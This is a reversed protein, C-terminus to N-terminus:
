QTILYSDIIVQVTRTGMYENINPYYTINFVIDSEINMFMKKVRDQGFKDSLDDLLSEADKFYLADIKRGYKNTIELKLTNKNKGLLFARNVKVNREAFVPKPNGKGFPELVKLENVLEETIYGLPLVVDIVVKKRLDDDTLSTQKNLARRFSEINEEELSLGAAMPHGGFKTLYRKVKTLEKFMNYEEISRGSGKVGKEAKTLVITPKNYQERVRGAIIGAISEHCDPLYIVLIKDDKLVSTEVQDIAEETGRATMDKREDNLDKLEKAIDYAQEKSEALLLQLGKEATDLRGSANLCPGIIFGLHYGSLKEININCLDILANLGYNSSKRLQKLGLQVLVRNEGLLDMVDCVTAIAVAEILPYLEQSDIGYIQYLVQILKFALAAGCLEKNPYQCERQKQNIVADAKPIQEIEKGNEEIIPIEHHDTIIVTMGKEKAMSVPCAAAIGNDCTIITDIKDDYATQIINSNIGYGDKIRDPIEYSVRAGCRQLGRYLIFTACIGDADYDGIIRIDKGQKIKDQLISSAKDIDKLLEPKYLGDLSPHLFRDIDEDEVVDRNALIRAIVESIGHNKMMSKFDAKKSRVVWREM